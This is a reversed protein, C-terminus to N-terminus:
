IQMYFFKCIVTVPYSGSRVLSYRDATAACIYEGSDDPNVNDITLQSRLYPNGSDIIFFPSGVSARTTPLIRRITKFKRIIWALSPQPYAEIRCWVHLTEENSFSYNGTMDTVKPLVVCHTLLYQIVHVIRYGCIFQIVISDCAVIGHIILM